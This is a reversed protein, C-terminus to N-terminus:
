CWEVKWLGPVAKWEQEEWLYLQCGVGRELFDKGVCGQEGKSETMTMFAATRKDARGTM